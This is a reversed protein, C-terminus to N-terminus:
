PLATIEAAQEATIYGATAFAEVESAGIKGLQYQIKLFNFM